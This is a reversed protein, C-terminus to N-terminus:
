WGCLSSNNKWSEFSKGRIPSECYGEKKFSVISHLLSDTLVFRHESGHSQKITIDANARNKINACRSSKNCEGCKMRFLKNDSLSLLAGCSCLYEFTVLAETVEGSIITEGPQQLHEGLPTFLELTTLETSCLVNGEGFDCISVSKLTYWQDLNVKYDGALILHVEATNDNLAYDSRHKREESPLINIEPRRESIKGTVTIERLYNTNKKVEALTLTPQEEDNRFSLRRRHHIIKPSRFKQLIQETKHQSQLPIQDTDKQEVLSNKGSPNPVVMTFNQNITINGKVSTQNITPASFPSGGDASATINLHSPSRSALITRSHKVSKNQIPSPSTPINESEPNEEDPSGASSSKSKSRKVSKRKM